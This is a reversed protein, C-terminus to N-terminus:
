APLSLAYRERLIKTHHEFHGAMVFAQARASIEGARVSGWRDLAEGDLSRVLAISSERVTALENALDAMTRRDANSIKAYDNEDFAALPTRDGRAIRLLRYAFIREADIVHGVVERVTWKDAAYRHSALDDPLQRLLDIVTRQRELAAIAEQEHAVDDLYTKFFAPYQDAAPRTVTM